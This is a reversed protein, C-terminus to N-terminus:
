EVEGSMEIPLTKSKATGSSEKIWAISVTGVNSKYFEVRYQSGPKAAICWTNEKSTKSPGKVPASKAMCKPMEPFFTMEPDMDAVVQFEETGQNGITISASYLGDVMM